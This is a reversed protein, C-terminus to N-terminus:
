GSGAAEARRQEAAMAERDADEADMEALKRRVGALRAQMRTLTMRERERAEAAERAARGLSRAEREQRTLYERESTAALPADAGAAAASAAAAPGATAALEAEVAAPLRPRGDGAAYLWEESAFRVSLTAGHIPAGDLAALAAEASRRTTFEATASGGATESVGGRRDRGISTEFHSLKGFKSLISTLEFETASSPVGSLVLKNEITEDRPVATTAVPRPRKFGRGSM